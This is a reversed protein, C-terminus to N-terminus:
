TQKLREIYWDVDIGGTHREFTSHVTWALELQHRADPGYVEAV